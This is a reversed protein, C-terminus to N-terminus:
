KRYEKDGIHITKVSTSQNVMIETSMQNLHFVILFYQYYMRFKAKFDKISSKPM